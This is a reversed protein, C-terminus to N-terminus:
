PALNEAELQDYAGDGFARAIAKNHRDNTEWEAPVEKTIYHLIFNKDDGNGKVFRSFINPNRGVRPRFFDVLAQKNIQVSATHGVEILIHAHIGKNQEGKNEFAARLRVTEVLHQTEGDFDHQYGNKYYKLWRWLNDGEIMDEIASRFQPMINDDATNFNITVHFNSWKLMKKVQKRWEALSIARGRRFWVFNGCFFPSENGTRQLHRM